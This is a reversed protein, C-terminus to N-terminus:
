RRPPRTEDNGNLDIVQQRRSRGGYAAIVHGALIVVVAGSAPVGYSVLAESAPLWSEVVPEDVLMEGAVYGILGAGVTVLVPFRDMIRLILTSGFVILPISIILGVILLMLQGHAAAAVGLAVAVLVWRRARWASSGAGPRFGTWQHRRTGSM